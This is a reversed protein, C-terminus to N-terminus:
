RLGLEALPLPRGLLGDRWGRLKMYIGAQEGSLRRRALQFPLTALIACALVIMQWVRAHQKAYLVSNRASLYKRFGGYHEAGGSSGHIAHRVRAAGTFWLEWRAEHARAAWEVDEHYAFYAEDFAGIERLAATRMLLSCGPIWPVSREGEFRGGDRENQGELAILSQLWTVRGWTAWLTSPDDARLVKGGVAAARPHREAASVLATLADPAVVTDNNLVWVYDAGAELARGIGVNNGAAYGLNRPNEVVTVRPYTAAIRARPSVRSGNDVVVISLPEYTLRHLSELCALTDELGNWNLVIAVVTPSMPLAIRGDIM